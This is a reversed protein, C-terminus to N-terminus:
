GARPVEGADLARLARALVVLRATTARVEAELREVPDTAPRHRVDLLASLRRREDPPVDGWGAHRELRSWLREIEFGLRRRDNLHRYRLRHESVAVDKM